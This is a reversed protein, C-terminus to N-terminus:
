SIEDLFVSDDEESEDDSYTEKEHKSKTIFAPEIYKYHWIM